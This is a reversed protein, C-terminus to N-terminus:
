NDTKDLGYKAFLAKQTGDAILADLAAQMKAIAADAVGQNCAISYIQEALVLVFEVEAGEGKLKEYYKESIPMMDIRGLMLKKYTLNFDSALDVKAFNNAKLVDATFDGRQTGVLYATAEKLTQPAIPAGKKRILVTRGALLPEVWKFKKDREANHVTTFVCTTAETGARKLARAWPMMEISYELRAKNMLIDVQDISAGKYVGNERFSFPPYEETVLKLPDAQAAAAAFLLPLITALHKMIHRGIRVTKLGKLM